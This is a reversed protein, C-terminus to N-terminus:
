RDEPNEPESDSAAAYLGKQLHANDNKSKHSKKDKRKSTGDM